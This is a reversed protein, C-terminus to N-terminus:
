LAMCGVSVAMKGQVIRFNRRERGRERLGCSESSLGLVELLATRQEGTGFGLVLFGVRFQIEINHRDGFCAASKYAVGCM